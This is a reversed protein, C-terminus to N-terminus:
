KHGNKGGSHKKWLKLYLAAWKERYEPNYRPALYNRVFDARHKDSFAYKAAEHSIIRSAELYQWSTEPYLALPWTKGHVGLEAKTGNELRRM